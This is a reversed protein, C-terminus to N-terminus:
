WFCKLPSTRSSIVKPNKESSFIWSTKHSAIEEITVHTHTTSRQGKEFKLKEKSLHTVYIKGNTPQTRLARPRLFMETFPSIGKRSETGALLWFNATAWHLRAGFRARFDLRAVRLQVEAGEMVRQFNGRSVRVHEGYFM